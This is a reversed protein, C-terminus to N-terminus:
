NQYPDAADRLGDGVFNFALVVIIVVFGPYLLWPYMSVAKFSQAQKLLVGLSVVPPRLGIGLFSLATEGIIMSPIALTLNVIIYSIFNPILHRTIIFMESANYSVAATVFEEERLSIFKSRIVRALGTWGVLSLIVTIAFYVQIASWGKPVAAALAMWLPIKPISMLTEIVRQIIEDIVGGYYGSVGGFILGMILSFFVGVFGITLSIKCAHFVRSLLDRGLKDTGLLFVTGGPDVGFLHINTKLLGLVSYEKGPVFFQIFYKKSKDPKTVLQWTEPDMEIDWNYVFPRLSFNGNEDFFHLKQPPLYVGEFRDFPDNPAFFGPLIVGAIYFILLVFISIKAVRHKKFERVMLSWQTQPIMKEQKNEREKNKFM